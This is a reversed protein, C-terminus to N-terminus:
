IRAAEAVVAEPEGGREPAVEDDRDRGLHQGLADVAALATAHHRRGEADQAADEGADLVLRVALDEQGLEQAVADGGGVLGVELVDGALEGVGGSGGDVAEAEECWVGDGAEGGAGPPGGELHGAHVADWFGRRRCRAAGM